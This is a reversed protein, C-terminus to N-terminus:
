RRCLGLDEFIRRRELVDNAARLSIVLRHEVAPMRV